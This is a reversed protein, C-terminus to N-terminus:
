YLKKAIFHKWQIDLFNHGMKYHLKGTRINAQRFTLLNKQKDPQIKKKTVKRIDIIESRFSLKDKNESIETILRISPMLSFHHVGFFIRQETWEGREYRGFGIAQNPAIFAIVQNKNTRIALRDLTIGAGFPYGVRFSANAGHLM